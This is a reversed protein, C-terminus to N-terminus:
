PRLATEARRRESGVSGPEGAQPPVVRHRRHHRHARAISGPEIGRDDAFLHALSRAWPGAFDATRVRDFVFTIPYEGLAARVMSELLEARVAAGSEAFDREGLHWDIGFPCHERDRALVAQVVAAASHLPDAPGADAHDAFLPGQAARMAWSPPEAANLHLRAQLGAAQLVPTLLRPLPPSGKELELYEAGDFALWGAVGGRAELIAELLQLAQLTASPEPPTLVAAALERPAELGTLVLLGNGHAAALDRSYVKELSYDELSRRVVAAPTGLAASGNRVGTM